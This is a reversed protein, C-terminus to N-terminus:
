KVERCKALNKVKEKCDSVDVWRYSSCSTLLITVAILILSKM